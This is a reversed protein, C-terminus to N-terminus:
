CARSMPWRRMHITLPVTCLSPGALMMVADEHPVGCADAVFETQGPHTFGVEALRSKAVPATVLAGAEGSLALRTAWILSALALKRAMATPKGPFYGFDASGLV